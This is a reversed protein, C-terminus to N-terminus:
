FLLFRKEKLAYSTERVVVEFDKANIIGDSDISYKNHNKILVKYFDNDGRVTIGTCSVLNNNGRTLIHEFAVRGFVFIIDLLEGTEKDSILYKEMCPFECGEQSFPVVEKKVTYIPDTVNEPKVGRKLTEFIYISRLEDRPTESLLMGKLEHVPPAYTPLQNIVRLADDREMFFEVPDNKFSFAFKDFDRVFFLDKSYQKRKVPVDSVKLKAVTPVFGSFAMTFLFLSDFHLKKNEWMYQLSEKLALFYKREIEMMINKTYKPFLLRNMIFSELGNFSIPTDIEYTELFERTKKKVDKEDSMFIVKSLKIFTEEELDKYTCPNESSGDIGYESSFFPTRMPVITKIEENDRIYFVDFCHNRFTFDFTFRKENFADTITFSFHNDSLYSFYIYYNLYTSRPRIFFNKAYMDMVNFEDRNVFMIPYLSNYFYIVNELANKTDGDKEMGTLVRIARHLEDSSHFEQSDYFIENRFNSELVGSKFKGKELHRFFRYEYEFQAYYFLCDDKKEFKGECVLNKAERNYRDFSQVISEIYPVGDRLSIILSKNDCIKLQLSVLVGGEVVKARGFFILRPDKFFAYTSGIPQGKLAKELKKHLYCINELVRKNNFTSNFLGDCLESYLAEQVHRENVSFKIFSNKLLKM